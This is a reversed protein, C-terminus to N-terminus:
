EGRDRDIDVLEEILASLADIIVIMDEPEVKRNRSIRESANDLRKLINNRRYLEM